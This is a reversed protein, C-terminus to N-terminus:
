GPTGQAILLAAQLQADGSADGSQADLRFRHDDDALQIAKDPAIGNGDISEGAPGFWKQVTLHLDAGDPLSFDEQVSGKGFTKQGVVTARKYDHLAAAVIEAASASDGDVLVAMPQTAAIGGDDTITDHTVQQASGPGQTTDLRGRRVVVDQVTPSKKLFQSATEQAETVFGGPNHRLDLVIGKAGSNLADQLQQRVTKGTSDDFGTVQIDVVSGFRMSYVSPISLDEDTVHLVLTQSGRQVTITHQTGAAQDILPQSDTIQTQPDPSLTSLKTGDIDVIIDGRQVGGKEAPQNHLVGVITVTTPQQNAPCVAGGACRAQLEIGVSANRRGSLNDQLAKYQQATFYSTFRDGFTDHLYQVIGAEAGATAKAANVDRVVYDNRVIDWAADVSTSDIHDGGGITPFITTVAGAYRSTRLNDVAFGGLWFAAVLALAIPWGTGGPFRGPRRPAPGASEWPPPSESGGGAQSSSIV